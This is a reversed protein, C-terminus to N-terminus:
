YKQTLCIYETHLLAFHRLCDLCKSLPFFKDNTGFKKGLCIVKNQVVIMKNDRSQAETLEFEAVFKLM